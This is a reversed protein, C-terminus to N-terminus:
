RALDRVVGALTRVKAADGSGQADADLQTALATAGVVLHRWAAADGQTWREGAALRADPLDVGLFEKVSRRVFWPNPIM